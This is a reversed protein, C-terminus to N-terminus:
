ESEEYLFLFAEAAHWSHPACVRDQVYKFDVWEMGEYKAQSAEAEYTLPYDRDSLRGGKAGAYHSSAWQLYPYKDDAILPQGPADDAKYAWWFLAAYSDEMGPVSYPDELGLGQLGFKAWKTQYVPHSAFDSRGEIWGEKQFRTLEKLIVPVLPHSKDSVLSILYLAQGLNDAETEGGNNRDYPERLGLIWERILDLNGTKQLAMAMMASDRYWPKAYVFFNPLPKGNVINVLMEQHLVRLVLQYARGEFNPLRVGDSSLAEKGGDSEVWVASEDEFIFVVKGDRTKLAVTYYPPVILEEAVDWERVTQGTIANRLRGNAYAYKTRNGMGFLFFDVAPLTYAGSHERRVLSLAKRYADLGIRLEQWREQDGTAVVSCCNELKPPAAKSGCAAALLALFLALVVL